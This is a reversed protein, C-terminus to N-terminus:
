SSYAANNGQSAYVGRWDYFCTAGDMTVDWLGSKTDKDTLPEIDPGASVIVALKAWNPAVIFWQTNSGVGSASIGSDLWSSSMVNVYGGYYINIDNNATSPRSPSGALIKATKDLNIGCVIYLSGPDMMPIGDDSLQNLLAIRGTEFNTETLPISTSSANSQATAGDARPHVTSALPVGDGYATITVGATVGTGSTFARNFLQAAARSLRVKVARILEQSEDFVGAFDRYLLTQRTVSLRGGIPRNRANTDFLKYRSLSPIVSGDAFETLLGPGTKGSFSTVYDNSRLTKVVPEWGGIQTLDNQNFFERFTVGVGRIVDGWFGVTEVAM